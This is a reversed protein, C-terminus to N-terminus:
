FFTLLYDCFFFLSKQPVAAREPIPVSRERAGPIPEKEVASRFFDPNRRRPLPYEAEPM